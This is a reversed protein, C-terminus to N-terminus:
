RHFCTDAYPSLKGGLHLSLITLDVRANGPIFFDKGQVQSAFVKNKKSNLINNNNKAAAGGFIVVIFNKPYLSIRLPLLFYWNAKV